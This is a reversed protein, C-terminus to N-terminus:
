EYALLTGEVLKKWDTWYEKLPCKLLTARFSGLILGVPIRDAYSRKMSAVIRERGTIEAMEIRGEGPTLRGASQTREFTPPSDPDGLGGQLAPTGPKEDRSQM